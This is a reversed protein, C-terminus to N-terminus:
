KELLKELNIEEYANIVLDAHQILRPIGATNIGICFMGAKQAATIGVPSDEIAICDCPAVGVKQAAYLYVAPDPKARGGVLAIDYIHQGFFRELNLQTKASELTDRASSTAVGTKLQLDCVKKYFTKFGPIFKLGNSYLLSACKTKEAILDEIPDALCYTKKLFSCSGLMGIGCLKEEMKEVDSDSLEVGRVRMLQKTAEGWVNGNDVITGDLDFIIAKYKVFGGQTGSSAKAFVPTDFPECQM